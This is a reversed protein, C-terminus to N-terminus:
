VLFVLEEPFTRCDLDLGRSRHDAIEASIGAMRGYLFMTFVIEQAEKESLEGQQLQKWFLDLAICAIAADVNVCYINPTIGEAHLEKVLVHYYELFPNAVNRDKLLTRLHVERPDHNEQKGRFVPHNVCPIRESVGELKAKKKRIVFEHTAEAALRKFVTEREAADTQYPDNGAFTKLLYSVAEFGNGGHALGTNTMFGAYATAIHNRASVSEKAGKASLTGPGNTLTLNLLANYAFLEHDEPIRNFLV